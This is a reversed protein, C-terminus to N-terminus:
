RALAALFGDVAADESLFDSRFERGAAGLFARLGPDAGLREAGNLLAEPDGADVRMGGGSLAIEEATVSTADTAALVPLGTSFYTTLKSPVCMDDLGPRENVLLIDAAALTPRFEDDPLPPIFSLRECSGLSELLGELAARRNGDGLLVFRVRSGRESALRAAHVVNELGQKAGMNGAHVVVVDDDAWGLAHRVADRGVRPIESLHSWNRVVDVNAPDLGLEDVLHRKFRDHIVVVRDGRRFTEREFAALSEAVRGKAQGTETVGPGYLDQVWVIRRAGTLRARMLAIRSSFLAPSVVIVADPRHWRTLSARLGFTLEMLLRNLLRPSAPVFHRVRKVPVGDIVDVRSLGRYGDSIRWAPYHPYGTIVAVDDGRRKLAAALGTTYPAIGTPEPAYNIGIILVRM